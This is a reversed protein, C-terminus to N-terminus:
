LRNGLAYSYRDTPRTSQRLHETLLRCSHMADHGTDGDLCKAHTAEESLRSDLADGSAVILGNSLYDQAPMDLLIDQGVWPCGVCRVHPAFDLPKFVKRSRARRVIAMITM